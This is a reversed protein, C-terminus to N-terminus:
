EVTILKKEATCHPISHFFIINVEINSKPTPIYVDYRERMDKAMESLTKVLLQSGRYIRSSQWFHSSLMLVEKLMLYVMELQRIRPLARLRQSQYLCNQKTEFCTTTDKIIKANRDALELHVVAGEGPLQNFFLLGQWCM